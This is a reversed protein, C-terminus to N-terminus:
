EAAAAPQFIAQSLAIMDSMANTLADRVSNFNRRKTYSRENMYLGRSVEIQLAHVGKRPRGYHETIYGGAYPRNLSVAFGAERLVAEALATFERACSSGFRDGLILDTKKGNQQAVMSSPMSHCDVLMATGHRARADRLLERLAAHYPQHCTRVRKLAEDLELPGDYIAEGDAVIRAITGLGGLVRATRSNAYDPLDESFLQPDLEFPERNADVYARPFRAAILPAGLKPVRAFLEDVFSDESKRLTMADLRSAALFSKPYCRGSHPSSFVFPTVCGGPPLVLTHPPQLGNASPAKARRYM